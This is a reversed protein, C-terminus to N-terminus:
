EREWEWEWEWEGVSRSSRRKVEGKGENKRESGALGNKRAEDENTRAVGGRTTGAAAARVWM